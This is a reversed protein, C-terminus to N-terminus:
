VCGCGQRWSPPAQWHRHHFHGNSNEVGVAGMGWDTDVVEVVMGTDVKVAWRPASLDPVCLTPEVAISLLQNPVVHVWPPTSLAFILNLGARSSQPESVTLPMAQPKFM